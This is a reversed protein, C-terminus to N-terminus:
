IYISSIILLMSRYTGKKICPLQTSKTFSFKESM